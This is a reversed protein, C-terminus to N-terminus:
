WVLHIGAQRSPAGDQDPQGSVVRRVPLIIYIDTENLLASFNEVPGYPWITLTKVKPKMTTALGRALDAMLEPDYRIIVSEDPKPDLSMIIQDIMKPYSDSLNQSRCVSGTLMILLLFLNYM